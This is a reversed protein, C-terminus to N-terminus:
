KHWIKIYCGGPKVFTESQQAGSSMEDIIIRVCHGNIKVGFPYHTDTNDDANVFAAKSRIEIKSKRGKAYDGKIIVPPEEQQAHLPQKANKKTPM